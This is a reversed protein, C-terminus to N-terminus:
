KKTNRKEFDELQEQYTRREWWQRPVGWRPSTCTCSDINVGGISQPWTIKKRKREECAEKIIRRQWDIPQKYERKFGEWSGFCSVIFIIIGVNILTM